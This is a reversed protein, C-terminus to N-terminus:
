SSACAPARFNATPGGVDNIYGKFDPEATMREAEEVISEQSRATM